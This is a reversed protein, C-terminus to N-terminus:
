YVKSSRNSPRVCRTLKPARMGTLRSFATPQRHQQEGLFLGRVHSSSNDSM